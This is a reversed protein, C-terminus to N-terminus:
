IDSNQVPLLRINMVRRFSRVYCFMAPLDVMQFHLFKRNEMWFFLPTGAMHDNVSPNNWLGFLGLCPLISNM